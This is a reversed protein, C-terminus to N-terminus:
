WYQVVKKKYVHINECTKEIHTINNNNDGDGVDGCRM